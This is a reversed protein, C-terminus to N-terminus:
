ERLASSGAASPTAPLRVTLVTGGDSPCNLGVEGAHAEVVRKVLALGLGTGRHKTTVFPEFVRERLSLPIGPGDDRVSVQAVGHGQDAFVRITGGGDMAQAANLLLNHFVQRLLAADGRVAVEGGEVEVRVASFRRDERLLGGAERLLPLLEVEEFRPPRPRSFLLLEETVETLSDIREVIDAVVPRLPSEPPLRGGIVQIAGKIGALPNRVEHAVVAAMEGLRALSQKSRLESESRQREMEAQRRRTIDLAVAVSGVLEGRDDRLPAWHLELCGDKALREETFSEGQGARRAGEVLGALGPVDTLVRGGWDGPPLGMRELGRGGALGVVLDQGVSVLGVPVSGLVFQLLHETRRQQVRRAEASLREQRLRDEVAHHRLVVAAVLGIALLTLPRNVLAMWGAPGSPGLAAGAVTLGAGAAALALTFRRTSWLGLLVVAAHLQCAAAGPPLRLDVVFVALLIAAAALTLGRPEPLREQTTDVQTM